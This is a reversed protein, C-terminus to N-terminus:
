KDDIQEENDNMNFIIPMVPKPSKGNLFIYENIKEKDNELLLKNFENEFNM